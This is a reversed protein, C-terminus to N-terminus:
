MCCEAMKWGKRYDKSIEKAKKRATELDDVLHWKTTTTAIHNIFYTCTKQHIKVKTAGKLDEM